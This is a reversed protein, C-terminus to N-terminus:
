ITIMDKHFFFRLVTRIGNGKLKLNGFELSVSVVKKIVLSHSCPVEENVLPLSARKRVARYDKDKGTPLILIFMNMVVLTINRKNLYGM